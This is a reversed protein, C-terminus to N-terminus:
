ENGQGPMQLSLIHPSTQVHNPRGKGAEDVKYVGNYPAPISRIPRWHPTIDTRERMEETMRNISVESSGVKKLQESELRHQRRM